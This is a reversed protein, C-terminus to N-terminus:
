YSLFAAATLVSACGYAWRRRLNPEGTATDAVTAKVCAALEGQAAPRSWFKQAFNGCETLATANTPTAAFANATGTYTLCGQFAVRYATYLSVASAQPEVSWRVQPEGFTTGLGSILAPTAGLARTYEGSLASFPKV